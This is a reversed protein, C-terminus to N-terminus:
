HRRGLRSLLLATALGLLLCLMFLVAAYSMPNASLWNAIILRINGVSFPQTAAFTVNAPAITAVSQMTTDLTSIQGSMRSWNDQQVLATVAQDLMGLTPAAIVTWMASASPSQQQAVVLRVSPGPVFKGEGGSLHEGDLQVDFTRSAWDEFRSVTGRWGSGSLEQRWKEFAADTSVGAGSTEAGDRKWIAALDRSLGVQSLVAPQVAATTDIFLANRDAGSRAVDTDVAIPRGAAVSLKGLLTAAASLAEHSSNDVFLAVPTESRAYPYGTGALAGLDPKRAVRAFAPLVFESTDFLAFRAEESSIAGPACVDDQDTELVAELTVVNPGPRFHRMTVDVAFHRLIGGGSQTIPVTAAINSNVYVDIHSGPKVAASYAADLLIQAHGYDNSYFDSPVSFGFDTRFRRGTFEQTPVGLTAFSQRGAVFFLPADPARWAETSVANRRTTLPRQLPAVITDIAGDVAQWDPGSIVLMSGGVNPNDVFTATPATAAERPLNPVTGALEAATGVIVTMKGPGPVTPLDRAIKVSQNPMNATMALGEALRILSSTAALRDLSPVVLDFRTAGSADVGIAAIDSTRRFLGADPASFELFTRNPDISAWLEYTSQVTCDTRHRMASAISFSNAGPKLVGAPIQTTLEAMAESSRVAEKLLTAGNITLELTSTEPAVVIANQYGLHLMAPSSAQEATLYISWARRDIEGSLSLEAFPVLNRRSTTGSMITGPAPPPVEVASGSPEPIPAPMVPAPTPEPTAPLPAAAPPTAPAAPAEVGREPTMDFPQAGQALSVSGFALLLCIALPSRM